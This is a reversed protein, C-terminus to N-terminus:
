TRLLVYEATWRGVGRRSTLLAVAAQDDLDHLLELNLHRRRDGELQRHDHTGQDHQVRNGEVGTPDGLVPRGHNATLRNLLHIGVALSLQQCAVANILAEFVTPFRPPKVGRLERALLDVVPDCAALVAFGSLDISLGLLRDLADRAIAQAHQDACGDSVKVALHPIDVSGSQTVSLAITRNGVRLARRYVRGDFRDIKTAPAGACRGPRSISASHRSRSM